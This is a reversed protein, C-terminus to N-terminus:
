PGAFGLVQYSLAFPFRFHWGQGSDRRTIIISKNTVKFWFTPQTNYPEARGVQIDEWYLPRVGAGRPVNTALEYTPSFYVGLLVTPIFSCEPFGIVWPASSLTARKDGSSSGTSPAPDNQWGAAIQLGAYAWDSDFAKERHPMGPHANFGPRSILLRDTNMLLRETM